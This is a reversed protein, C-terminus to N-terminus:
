QLTGVFRKQRMKKGFMGWAHNPLPILPLGLLVEGTEDIAAILGFNGEEIWILVMDYTVIGTQLM